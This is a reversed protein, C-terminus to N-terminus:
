VVSMRVHHVSDSVMCVHYTGDGFLHRTAQDRIDFSSCSGISGM